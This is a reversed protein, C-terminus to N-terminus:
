LKEEPESVVQLDREIYIKRAVIVEIAAFFSPYNTLESSSLWLSVMVAVADYLYKKLVREAWASDRCCFLGHKQGSINKIPEYPYLMPSIPQWPQLKLLNDHWSASLRM